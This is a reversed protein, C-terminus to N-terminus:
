TAFILVTQIGLEESRVKRRHATVACELNHTRTRQGYGSVQLKRMFDTM